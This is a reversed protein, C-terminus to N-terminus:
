DKRYQIEKLRELQEELLIRNTQLMISIFSLAFCILSCVILGSGLILSQIHGRGGHRSQSTLIAFRIVPELGIALLIAGLTNFVVQPRYTIYSRVIASGSKYMHQWINNFLRSERTKPNTEVPISIIAMRKHGAQIITETCYSFETMVNLRVLSYRSYARFGSAADPLNTRGAQNVVWSGFHQM